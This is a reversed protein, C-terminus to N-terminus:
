AAMWGVSAEILDIPILVAHCHRQPSRYTVLGVSPRAGPVTLLISYWDALWYTDDYVASLRRSAKAIAVYGEDGQPNVLIGCSRLSERLDWQRRARLMLDGLTGRPTLPHLTGNLLHRLCGQGDLTTAAEECLMDSRVDVLAPKPLPTQAWITAAGFRGFIREAARVVNVHSNRERASMEMLMAGGPVGQAAMTASREEDAIRRRLEEEMANFQGIYREKFIAAEKGTFGFVLFTFGDKTMNFSRIMRGPVTPHEMEWPEFNLRAFEESCELNDIDRLVNKHQKKFYAAVDRSNAFVRGDLEFVVPQIVNNTSREMM